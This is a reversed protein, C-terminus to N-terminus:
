TRRRPRLSAQHVDIRGTVLSVSAPVFAWERNLLPKPARVSVKRGASAVTSFTAGRSDFELKWGTDRSRDLAVRDDTLGRWCTDPISLLWVLVRDATRFAARHEIVAYSGPHIPQFEVARRGNLATEMAITRVGPGLPDPDACRVRVIRTNVASLTASSLRFQVEEGPAVSLPSAYGLIATTDIM